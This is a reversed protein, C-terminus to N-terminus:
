LYKRIHGIEKVELFELCSVKLCNLLLTKRIIKAFYYQCLIMYERKAQNIVETRVKEWGLARVMSLCLIVSAEHDFDVVKFLKLIVNRREAEPLQENLELLDAVIEKKASYYSELTSCYYLFSPRHHEFTGNSFFLRALLETRKNRILKKPDAEFIEGAAPKSKKNELDQVIKPIMSIEKDLLIDIIRLVYQRISDLM